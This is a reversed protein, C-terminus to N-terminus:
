AFVRLNHDACGVYLGNADPAFAVATVAKSVDWAKVVEWEAKVSYVRADSGGVALYHGSHDFAVCTTTAGGEGWPAISKFNKLKRLDWLKVGDAASTALYYGNESFSLATVSGTHGEVKAVSKQSKVDWVKVMSDSCGTALILGDPHFSGCTFGGTGDEDNVVSLCEAAGIDYFGWNKDAGISCAYAQTPHVSIGVVEGKHVGPMTAACKAGNWLKVTKDASSSILVSPGDGGSVWAVDTCRKTHGTLQSVRKGKGADFLAISGDAGATAIMTTDAPNVAVAGIGASTTKHCPATTKCTMAGVADSSALSESVERKKRYKLLEKSKTVMAAVVDASIGGKAKKAGDEEDMADAGRKGGSAATAAPIPGTAQASALAGRAEDREKVLRAIVRCAADHQYLSHSLEQRNAHLDKRLENTELMLADWENHFTALMGPVSTASAPKPKVAKNAKVPMLDDLTLPTSTVPCEGTEQLAKTILSREFLHGTKASIVPEEPTTGSISCFM